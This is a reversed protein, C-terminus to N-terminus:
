ILSSSLYSSSPLTIHLFVYAVECQPPDKDNYRLPNCDIRRMQWSDEVDHASIAYHLHYHIMLQVSDERSSEANVSDTDHLSLKNSHRTPAHLFIPYSTSSPLPQLDNM